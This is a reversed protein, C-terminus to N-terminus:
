EPVHSQQESEAPHDERQGNSQVKQKGDQQNEAKVNSKSGARPKPVLVMVMLKGDLTPQREVTALHVVEEAIRQLKARGLEPHTIERAKFQCTVRVKDGAVLFKTTRKIATAIDHEAIRPSIKIGKVGQQKKKHERERREQEYKYRGYDIVRCVPPNATSSVLVLDLGQKEAISLAERSPVIGLQKGDSDVLRVERFRLCRENIM